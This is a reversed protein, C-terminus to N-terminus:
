NGETRAIVRAGGEAILNGAVTFLAIMVIPALVALPQSALGTRNESVMLGWDPTPPQIGYGIFSISALIGVAWMLRIGLEVLLPSTINPMVQSLLVKYGPTGIARSWLVYERNCVPMAAGRIVRAVGPVLALIVLAVLLWPQPGLVSVFMLALLLGPFALLVDMIRMLITDVWGGYYAGVMGVLAGLAVGGFASVPAMWALYKGGALVRSLVDRGLQDAGFLLGEGPPAYPTSVPENPPHPAFFEGFFAFLMTFVLLIIGWRVQHSALFRKLVRSREVREPQEPQGAIAPTSAHSM